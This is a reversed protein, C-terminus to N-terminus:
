RSPYVMAVVMGAIRGDAGCKEDPGQAFRGFQLRCARVSARV